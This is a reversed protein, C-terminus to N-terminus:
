IIMTQNKEKNGGGGSSRAADPFYVRYGNHAELVPLGYNDTMKSPNLEVTEDPLLRWHDQNSLRNRVGVEMKAAVPNVGTVMGALDHTQYYKVDPNM